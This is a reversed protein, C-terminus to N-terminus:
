LLEGSTFINKLHKTIAQRGVGFLEGMQDQSLWMTENELRVDLEIQGTEARYIVINKKV